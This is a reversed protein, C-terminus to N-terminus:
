LSEPPAVSSTWEIGVYDLDPRMDDVTAKAMDTGDPSIMVFAASINSFREGCVDGQGTLNYTHAIDNSDVNSGPCNSCYIRWRDVILTAM